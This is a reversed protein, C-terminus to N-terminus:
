MSVARDPPFLLSISTGQEPQSQISMSGGHRNLIQRCLSLGIGSGGPKTTYFPVFVKDMAEPVIGEGQDTVTIVPRGEKREASLTIVPLTGAPTAEVANRVLNILVQELLNRDGRIRLDAPHVQFSIEGKGVPLLSKMEEFLSDVRFYEMVPMPIRTLKRYNEVFELLGRSRRHITQMAQLMVEYDKENMGHAEARDTVTEALSIVPALSNMIEHTLVRILKQWAEIETEAVVSQYLRSRFAELAENMAIALEKEEGKGQQPFSLNLDGYHINAIMYKMKRIKKQQEAWLSIASLIMFLFLLGASFYLERSLFLAFGLAFVVILIIRIVFGYQKM